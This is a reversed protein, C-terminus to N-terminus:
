TRKSPKSKKPKYPLTLLEVKDEVQEFEPDKHVLTANNAMATAIIFSDAM